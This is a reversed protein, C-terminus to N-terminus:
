SKTEEPKEEDSKKEVEAVAEEKETDAVDTAEEASPEETSKGAAEDSPKEIVSEEGAPMEGAKVDEAAEGETAEAKEGRKSKGGESIIDIKWGSLNSSLRVNQGAKGIALSLQDEKVEVTALKTEENLTVNLVKAPSLSNSILKIPDADWEIIDIKEGGLESIVTQVRTGRQGVCSGVPDIAPDNTAVALKTRSGAERAILKIEIVGSEIEPVEMEFLKAVLQPHSRSVIIEPGRPTQGVSVIYFKTRNGPRYVESRIQEQPPLLATAHGIDALVMRGEVRQISGNILTGARDKFEEFVTQREAERLKQIIVQKATQAAMRGFEGPVELETRIVDGIKADPKILKADELTIERRPDFPREEEIQEPTAETTTTTKTDADTPKPPKESIEKKPASPEADEAADKEGGEPVPPEPVKDTVTKEDFTRAKGTSPDFEAVVNQNEQGFDKRFAVALAAEITSIVSEYPIHKEDCIQEIAKQIDSM